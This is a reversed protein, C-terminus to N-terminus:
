AGPLAKFLETIDPCPQTRDFAFTPHIGLWSVLGVTLKVDIVTDLTAGAPGCKTVLVKIAPDNITSLGLTTNYQMHMPLPFTTSQKSPFKLDKVTGEGMFNEIIQGNIDKLKVTFDLQKIGVDISSTSEVTVDTITDFSLNFPKANIIDTIAGVATIPQGDNIVLKTGESITPKGYTVIPMSPFLLFIVLILVGILVAFTILCVVVSKFCCCIVNGGKKRDQNEFDREEKLVTVMKKILSKATPFYKLASKRV